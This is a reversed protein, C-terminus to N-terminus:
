KSGAKMRNIFGIFKRIGWIMLTLMLIYWTRAGLLEGVQYADAGSLLYLVGLGWTIALLILTSLLLWHRKVWIKM